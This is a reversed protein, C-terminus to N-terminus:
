NRGSPAINETYRCDPFGSCGYFAGFKGNRIKMIKGCKPCRRIEATGKQLEKGLFEYVQQNMICDNLARHAGQTEIGYYLALDTLRHHHLAPLCAKALSLTDVYDNDPVQRFFNRCDRYIFGMDFTRINHGALIGEGAFALFEPLVEAFEPADEVMDDTIHNVQSAGFPIPRGPNVLSTFEDIIKGGKVKVASIEIVNGTAVSIGTTELDFVCYDPVYEDIQKGQQDSLM